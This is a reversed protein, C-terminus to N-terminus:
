VAIQFDLEYKVAFLTKIWNFCYPCFVFFRFYLFFSKLLTLLNFPFIEPTSNFIKYSKSNMLNTKTFLFFFFCSCILNLVQRKTKWNEVWFFRKKKNLFKIFFQRHIKFFINTSFELLDLYKKKLSSSNLNMLYKNNLRQCEKKDWLFM